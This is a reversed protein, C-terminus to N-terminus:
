DRRDHDRGRGRGREGDDDGHHRGNGECRGDDYHTGPPCSRAVGIPRSRVFCGALSAMLCAALTLRTLRM